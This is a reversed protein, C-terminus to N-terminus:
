HLAQFHLLAFLLPLAPRSQVILHNCIHQDRGQQTRERLHRRSLDRGTFQGTRMRLKLPHVIACLAMRDAFGDRVFMTEGAMPLYFCADFLFFSKVSGDPRFMTEITVLFMVAPLEFDISEVPLREIMRGNTKRQFSLVRFQFAFFAVGLVLDGCFVDLRKGVRAFLFRQQAQRLFADRAMLVLMAPLQRLLTCRTVCCVLPFGGGFERMRPRLELQRSLVFFHFTHLAVLIFKGISLRDLIHFHIECRALRAMGIRVLSFECLCAGLAVRCVAKTLYLTRREIMGNCLKRQLFFMRGHLALLTMRAIGFGFIDAAFGSEVDRFIPQALIAVGIGVGTLEVSACIPALAFGAMRFTCKRDHLVRRRVMRACRKGEGARMQGHGARFAM